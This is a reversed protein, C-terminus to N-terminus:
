PTKEIDDAEVSVSQGADIDKGVEVSGEGESRIKGAKVTADRGADLGVGVQVSPGPARKKEAEDAEAMGAEHGRRYSIKGVAFLAVLVLVAGVAAVAIRADGQLPAIFPTAFWIVLGALISWVFNM